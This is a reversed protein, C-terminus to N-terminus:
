RRSDGGSLHRCLSALVMYLCGPVGLLDLTWWAKANVEETFEFPWRVLGAWGASLGRWLSMSVAAHREGSRCDGKCHKAAPVLSEDRDM